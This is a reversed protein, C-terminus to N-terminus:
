RASLRERSRVFQLAEAVLSRWKRSHSVPVTAWEQMLRGDRRPDFRSGTGSTVLQTVRDRPLKVVLEGRYLTAFIKKGVKLVPAGGFGTGRTVAPEALFHFTLEEFRRAARDTEAIRTM